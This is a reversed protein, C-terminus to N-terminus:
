DIVNYFFAGFKAGCLKTAADTVIQVLTGLDLQAAIASGTDNLLELIRTEDRLAEEARRQETVDSAAGFWETIQGQANLLPIARSSTWGITGDVRNVRHELEFPSKTRIAERIAGIVKPQDEPHIYKELWARDPAETDAIFDKGKLQRMESWDSNMRYV